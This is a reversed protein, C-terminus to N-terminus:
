VHEMLELLEGARWLLTQLHPERMASESAVRVAPSRAKQQRQIVQPNGEEDDAHAGGKEM